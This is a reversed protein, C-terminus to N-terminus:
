RALGAVTAADARAPCMASGRRARAPEDHAV